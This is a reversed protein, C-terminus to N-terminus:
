HFSSPIKYLSRRRRRSKRRKIIVMIRYLVILGILLIYWKSLIRRFLSVPLIREIELTSVIDAQGLLKGQLYYEVKGLVQGKKLPAEIDDNIIVKKDISNLSEKPISLPLDEKIVGAVIPNIAEKVEINDVFINKTAVNVKEFNDFGYNLLKHIDSFVEQGNSKLVVAILNQNERQASAVLCNQAVSTYGTKVGNIGEYKIPVAKGDVDIKQNSYLLRNASKM